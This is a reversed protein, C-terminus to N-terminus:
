SIIYMTKKTTVPTIYAGKGIKYSVRNFVGTTEFTLIEGKSSFVYILNNALVPSNWYRNKRKEKNDLYEILKVKWINQGTKLNIALLTNKDDIAYVVNNHIHIPRDINHKEKWIIKKNSLNLKFLYGASTYFYLFNEAILPQYVAIKVDNLINELSINAEDFSWEEFGTYKNLANINGHGDQMIIVNKYIIPSVISVVSVEGNIGSKYWLIGGNDANISYMGNNVTQLYLVNDELIPYSRVIEQLKQQWILKGTKSDLCNILDSGFSAYVRNKEQYLGGNLYNTYFTFKRNVQKNEWSTKNNITNVRSISGKRDMGIYYNNGIIPQSILPLRLSNDIYIIKYKDNSITRKDIETNNLYNSYQWVVIDDFEPINILKKGGICGALSFLLILFYIVKKVLM